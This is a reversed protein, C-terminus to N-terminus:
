LFPVSASLIQLSKECFCRDSFVTLFNVLFILLLNSEMGLVLSLSEISGCKRDEIVIVTVCIQLMDACNHDLCACRSLKEIVCGLSANLLRSTICVSIGYSYCLCKSFVTICVACTIRVIVCEM